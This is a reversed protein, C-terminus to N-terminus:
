FSFAGLEAMVYGLWLVLAMYWLTWVLSAPLVRSLSRFHENYWKKGFAAILNASIADVLLIIYVITFLTNKM